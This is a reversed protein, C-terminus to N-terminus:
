GDHEPERQKREEMDPPLLRLKGAAFLQQQGGKGCSVCLDVCVHYRDWVVALSPVSRKIVSIHDAEFCSSEKIHLESLPYSLEARSKCIKVLRRTCDEMDFEYEDEEVGVFELTSLAPFHPISLDSLPPKPRQEMIEIFDFDFDQLTIIQLSPLNGFLSWPITFPFEQAKEVSLSTLTTLNLHPILVNLLDPMATKAWDDAIALNPVVPCDQTTPQYYIDVASFSLHLSEVDRHSGNQGTSTQLEDFLRVMALELEGESDDDYDEDVDYGDLYILINTEEPIRLLKFFRAVHNAGDMLALYRLAPLPFRSVSYVADGSGWLDPIMDWLTLSQLSLLGKLLDIFVDPPPATHNGDGENIMELHTLTTILMLEHWNPQRPLTLELRRLNPLGARLFMDLLEFPAGGTLILSELTPLSNLCSDPFAVAHVQLAGHIVLHRVHGSIALETRSPSQLGGSTSAVPRHGVEPRYLGECCGELAQLRTHTVHLLTAPLVGALARVPHGLTAFVFMVSLVEAPLQYVPSHRNHLEALNRRKRELEQIRPLFKETYLNHIQHLLGRTTTSTAPPLPNPFLSPGCGQLVEIERDINYIRESLQQQPQESAEARGSARDSSQSRQSSSTDGQDESEYEGRRSMLGPNRSIVACALGTQNDLPFWGHATQHYLCIPSLM